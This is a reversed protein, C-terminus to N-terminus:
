ISVTLIVSSANSKVSSDVINLCVKCRFTDRDVENIDARGKVKIAEMAM